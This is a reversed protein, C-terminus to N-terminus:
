FQFSISENLEKTRMSISIDSIDGIDLKYTDKQPDILFKFRYENQHSYSEDKLFGVMKKSVEGSMKSMNRYHVLRRSYYFKNDKAVRDVRDFFENVNLIIVAYEGFNCVREDVNMDRYFEQLEEESIEKWNQSNLSYMCFIHFHNHEKKYIRVPQTMDKSDLECDGISSEINIIVDETSFQASVGELIDKRNDKSSDEISRYKHLQQMFLKGEQFEKAYEEKDFVKILGYICSM